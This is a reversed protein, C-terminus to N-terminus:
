SAHGSSNTTVATAINTATTSHHPSLANKAMGSTHAADTTPLQASPVPGRSNTARSVVHPHATGTTM